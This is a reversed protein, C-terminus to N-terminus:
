AIVDLAISFLTAGVLAVQLDGGGIKTITLSPDEFPKQPTHTLFTGAHGPFSAFCAPLSNRLSTYRKNFSLEFETDASDEVPLRSYHQGM